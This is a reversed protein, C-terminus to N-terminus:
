KRAAGQFGALHILDDACEGLVEILGVKGISLVSPHYIKFFEKNMM